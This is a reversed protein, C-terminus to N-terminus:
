VQEDDEESEIVRAHARLLRKAQTPALQGEAVLLKIEHELEDETGASDIVRIKEILRDLRNRVTPYSIGYQRALEKLSGSALMFRKIFQTDEESLGNMWTPLDTM